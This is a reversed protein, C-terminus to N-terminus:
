PMLTLPVAFSSKLGTFTTPNYLAAAFHFTLGVFGNAIGPALSLTVTAEGNADLSGTGGAFVRPQPNALMASWLWDGSTLPVTMGGITSPGVGTASGLLRYRVGADSQLFNLQYQIVGGQSASIEVASTTLFVNVSHVDVAGAGARSSPSASPAGVLVDDIGDQDLDGVVAVASGYGSAPYTAQLTASRIGTRADLVAVAGDPGENIAGVLIDPKGDGTVDTAGAVSSGLLDSDAAGTVVLLQNPARGSYVYVAGRNSGGPPAFGPAGIVLDDVGDHDIDRVSSVAEGFRENIGTGFLTYRLSGTRGSFVHVAGENGLGFQYEGVILDPASDNDVDSIGAVSHGFYARDQTGVLRHIVSGDIGSYLIAEGVYLSSGVSVSDAGALFDDHLDGNVDGVASISSGLRSYDSGDLRYLLAGSNGSYVYVAGSDSVGRLNREGRAGIAYDPYGDFNVDGVGSVSYGLYDTIHAGHITRLVQGTRGSYVFASGAKFLGNPSASPAGAIFDAQGDNNIDGIGSVSSGLKDGSFVGEASFLREWAGGEQAPTQVSFLLLFALVLVRVSRPFHM